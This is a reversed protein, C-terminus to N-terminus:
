ALTMGLGLGVAMGLLGTGWSMTRRESNLSQASYSVFSSGCHENVRDIAKGIVTSNLTGTTDMSQSLTNLVLASCKSCSPTSTSPLSIMLKTQSKLERLVLPYLGYIFTMRSPVILQKLIASVGTDPDTLGGMEKVVGYNGVGVEMEEAVAKGEALDSDCKGKGKMGTLVSSM